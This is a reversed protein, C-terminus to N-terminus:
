RQSSGKDPHKYETRVAEKGDGAQASILTLKRSSEACLRDLLRRRPILDGPLQPRQMKTRILTLASTEVTM